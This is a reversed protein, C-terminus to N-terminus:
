VGAGSLGAPGGPDRVHDGARLRCAGGARGAAGGRCRDRRAM